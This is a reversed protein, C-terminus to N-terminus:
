KYNIIEINDGAFTGVYMKNGAVVSVSAAGTGKHLERVALTEPDLEYIGYPIDCTAPTMEICRINSLPDGSQGTVMLKGNPSWSFNDPSVELAVEDRIVQKDELMLRYVKKTGWEAIYLSRGDRSISIGNPASGESDPVVQLGGSQSWYYVFGNSKEMLLLFIEKVLTLNVHHPNSLFRAFYLGGDAAIAVDNHLDDRDLFICGRWSAVPIEGSEDVSFLEIAERDGHNVAALLITGDDLRRVDLGHGGFKSPDPKGPCSEDGFLALSDDVWNAVDEGFLSVVQKTETNIAGLSGFVTHETDVEFFMESYVLWDGSPLLAMDEANQIGCIRNIAERDCAALMGPKEACATILILTLYPLLRLMAFLPPNNVLGSM